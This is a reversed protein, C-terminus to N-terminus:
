EAVTILRCDPFQAEFTNDAYVKHKPVSEFDEYCGVLALCAVVVALIKNLKM